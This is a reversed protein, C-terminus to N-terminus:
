NRVLNSPCTGLFGLKESRMLRTGNRQASEELAHSLQCFRAFVAPIDGGDQASFVDGNGDGDVTSM